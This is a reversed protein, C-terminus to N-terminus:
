CSNLTMHRAVTGAAPGKRTLTQQPPESKGEALGAQLAAGGRPALEKTDYPQSLRDAEASAQVLPPLGPPLVAPLAPVPSSTLSVPVVAVPAM